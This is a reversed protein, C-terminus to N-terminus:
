DRYEHEDEVISILRKIADLLDKLTDFLEMYKDDNVEEDEGDDGCYYGADELKILENDMLECLEGPDGTKLYSRSIEWTKFRSDVNIDCTDALEKAQRTFSCDPLARVAAALRRIMSYLETKDEIHKLYDDEHILYCTENNM